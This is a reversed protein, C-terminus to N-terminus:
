EATGSVEPEPRQHCVDVAAGGAAPHERPSFSVDASAPHDRAVELRNSFLGAVEYRTKSEGAPAFFFFLLVCFIVKKIPLVADTQQKM